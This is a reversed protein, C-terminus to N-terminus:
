KKAKEAKKWARRAGLFLRLQKFKSVTPRKKWTNYKLKRISQLIAEGGLTFMRLDVALHPDVKDWLDKGQDFWSQARDVEHKMMAIWREDYVRNNYDEQTYGYLAMTETPFYSRNQELDRAVDQWHNALQLATCTFNSIERLKEDDHGYVYLFLHVPDASSHVCYDRLEDWSEYQTKNQDLKFATILDVYPKLPIKCARSTAAVANLIPHQATGSWHGEAVSELDNQWANLLTLRGETDFPADDGLDDGYRCFAYINEIHQRVEAPTFYNAILFNEYHSGAILTCYAQAEELSPHTGWGALHVDEGEIRHTGWDFKEGM